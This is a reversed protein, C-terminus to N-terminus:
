MTLLQPYSKLIELREILAKSVKAVGISEVDTDRNSFVRDDLPITIARLFLPWDGQGITDVERAKKILDLYTQEISGYAHLPPCELLYSWTPDNDLNGTILILLNEALAGLPYGGKAEPDMKSRSNAFLEVMINALINMGVTDNISPLSIGVRRAISNIAEGAPLVGWIIKIMHETIYAQQGWDKRKRSRVQNVAGYWREVMDSVTVQFRWGKKEIETVLLTALLYSRKTSQRLASIPFPTIEDGKHIWRKAFELTTKSSHTKAESVEVGLSRIVTLYMEAVQKNGIVIDDGLLCYPLTRWEVGCLRCCYYVVYHHTLAFSAWSSYFGMPNGVAYNLYEGKFKFPYGVMIDEWASVYNLPLHGLLVQSIVKIPFRDTAATLDISYYWDAGGLKSRFSEQDFTCDQPIKKLARYLYNHLGKLATQSFYDGIAIVRTKGERDAFYSIKRYDDSRKAAYFVDLMVPAKALFGEMLEGLKGGSVVDISSKLKDPLLTLEHLWAWLAHGRSPGTKTTFHFRRFRLPRPLSGSHQYGLERWFSKAWMGLQGVDKELPTVIPSISPDAELRIARTSFLVTMILRLIVPDQDIVKNILPGLHVPLRAKTVLKVGSPRHENGSLYNTVAMRYSKTMNILGSVGRTKLVQDMQNLLPLFDRLALDKPKVAWVIWSLTNRCLPM